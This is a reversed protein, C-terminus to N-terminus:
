RRLRYESPCQGHVRHFRQSFYFPNDFGVEWAIASISLGTHRLLQCARNLRQTEIFQRPSSNLYRSFLRCLQPRSVGAIRSLSEVPLDHGLHQAIHDILRGLRPDMVVTQSRPNAADCWLLAAQLINMAMEVRRPLHSTALRHMELLHRRARTRHGADAIRLIGHGEAFEPWNLLGRWEAPANFVAWVSLWSEAGPATGYDHPSGPEILM